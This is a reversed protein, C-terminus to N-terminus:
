ANRTVRLVEDFTTKGLLVKEVGDEIISKFGRKEASEKIKEAPAHELILDHIDKDLELLECLGLRGSYGTNLCHDCGKGIAFEMKSLDIIDKRKLVEKIDKRESIKKLVVPDLTQKITCQDCNKRVLRQAIVLNVVSGIVFDDIKMELFRTFVSAADNTHLTTLVLHGTLAANTAMVGTESDRIEGVMLVDPDQRLLARLGTVFTLDVRPNIQIQNVGSISYEVPDELTSININKKRLIDLLAYLTTTKGSGTPGSAVIMGFPKEINRMLVEEQEKTFGLGSFSLNKSTDDLVRMAVKEGYLTPVTSIRLSIGNASDIEIRGDQPRRFEEIKMDSMIKFRSVLANHMLKPFNLVNHLVGDVRFRVITENSLPELHVDSAKDALAYKIILDSIEVIKDSTGHGSGTLAEIQEKYNQKTATKQM